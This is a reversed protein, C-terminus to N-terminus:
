KKINSTTGNRTKYRWNATKSSINQSWLRLKVILIWINKQKKKCTRWRLIVIKRIINLKGAIYWGEISIYVIIRGTISGINLIYM